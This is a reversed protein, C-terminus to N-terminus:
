LTSTTNKKGKLPKFKTIFIELKEVSHIRWGSGEKQFKALNELMRERMKEYKENFNSTITHTKSRAHVVTFVKEGTKLDERELVCVLTASVKKPGNANTVIRGECQEFFIFPDKFDEGSIIWKVTNGRIAESVLVSNTRAEWQWEEQADHWEEEEEGYVLNTVKRAM